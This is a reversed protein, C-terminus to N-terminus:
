ERYGLTTACQSYLLARKEITPTIIWLFCQRNDNFKVILSPMVYGSRQTNLKILDSTIFWRINTNNWHGVEFGSCDSPTQTFFFSPFVAAGGGLDGDSIMKEFTDHLDVLGPAPHDVVLVNQEPFTDGFTHYVIDFRSVLSTESTLATVERIASDSIFIDTAPRDIKALEDRLRRLLRQGPDRQPHQYHWGCDLALLDGDEAPIVKMKPRVSGVNFWRRGHSDTDSYKEIFTAPTCSITRYYSVCDCVTSACVNQVSILIILVVGFILWPKMFRLINDKMMMM